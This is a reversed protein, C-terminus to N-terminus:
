DRVELGPYPPNKEYQQRRYRNYAFASGMVVPGLGLLIAAWVATNPFVVAGIQVLALVLAISAAYLWERQQWRVASGIAVLSLAVTLLSFYKYTADLALLLPSASIGLAGLFNWIRRYLTAERFGRRHMARTAWTALFFLGGVIATSSAQTIALPLVYDNTSRLLLGSLALSCLSIILAAVGFFYPSRSEFVKKQQELLLGSAYMISGYGVGAWLWIRPDDIAAWALTSFFVGVTTICALATWTLHHYRWAAWLYYCGTLISTLLFLPAENTHQGVVEWLVVGLTVPLLISGVLLFLFASRTSQSRSIRDGVILLTASPISIVLMRALTNWDGWSPSILLITGAIVILGGLFILVENLRLRHRRQPGLPASTAQVFKEVQVSADVIDQDNWGAVKAAEAADTPASGAARRALLFTVLQRQSM